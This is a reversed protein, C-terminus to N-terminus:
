RTVRLVKIRDGLPTGAAVYGIGGLNARVFDLAEAASKEPPPIDRGSFIMQQWYAKIAATGREHIVRSFADRVPSDETLDVPSVPRGNPYQLSKHLFYRSVEGASSSAVPNATNVIVVFGEAGAAPLSSGPLLPLLLISLLLGYLRRM